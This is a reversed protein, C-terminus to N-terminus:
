ILYKMLLTLARMLILKMVSKKIRVFYALTNGERFNKMRPGLNQGHLSASYAPALGVSFQVFYDLEFM